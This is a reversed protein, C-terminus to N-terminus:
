DINPHNHETSPSACLTTEFLELLGPADVDISTQKNAKHGANTSLIPAQDPIITQGAEIGKTIVRIPTTRTTFLEPKIVYAIASPDHIAFGNMKAVNRYYDNYHRSIKYIFEGIEGANNRIRNMYEEEMIIKMTADLGIMTLPWPAQLTLDAALPDGAMNAEAFASVNGRHGNIGLAGGMIVVNKVKHAIEPARRLALALNTMRGVAVITIENPNSLVTDVIFEIANKGDADISPAPASINGLGDEGHISCVRTRSDGALSSASGKYVPSPIRFREKVYLANRTTIELSCNGAGTTIGIIEITPSMHAFLLGMVDDIGPDTDYIIKNAIM